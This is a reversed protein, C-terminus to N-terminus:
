THQSVADNESVIKGDLMHVSRTAYAAVRPDHTVVIITIGQKNLSRILEMIEVGTKSDLNGTPEDGLVIRPRNVLARAMAVRQQEGGSLQTPRHDMRKGLGVRTLMDTARERREDLPVGAFLMPFEVNQLATMTPILNFSQFVFGIQRQRYVALHNEDLATIEQGGVVITGDDPRDLGGLLTLMTSKGSGSPGMICLFEGERVVLDVGDLALVETEGLQYTRRLGRTTILTSNKGAM